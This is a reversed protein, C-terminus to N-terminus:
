DPVIETLVVNYGDNELMKAVLPGGNDEREGKYSRDSVTIVAATYIEEM